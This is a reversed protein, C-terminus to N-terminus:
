FCSWWGSQNVPKFLTAISSALSWWTTSWCNPPTSTWFQHCKASTSYWWLVKNTSAKWTDEGYLDPWKPWWCLDTFIKWLWQQPKLRFSQLNNSSQSTAQLLGTQERCSDTNVGLRPTFVNKGLRPRIKACVCDWFKFKLEPFLELCTFVEILSM